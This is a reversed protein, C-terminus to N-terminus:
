GGVRSRVQEEIRAYSDPPCFLVMSNGPAARLIIVGSKPRYSVKRVQGWTLRQSQRSQALLGAGVASYNRAFLGLLVAARSLRRGKRAQEEQM